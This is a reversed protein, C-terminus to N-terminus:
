YRAISRKLQEKIKQQLIKPALVKVQDGYSLIEMKFDYTPRIFYRYRIEKDNQEILEQSKHLPLSGVYRGERPSFSLIVEVPEEETGNIIGFSNEFETEVDFDISKFHDKTLNLNEIRDLSFNKIIDDKEDKAILYWRNRAEKLSIPYVRRQSVSGDWFKKYEFEVVWLNQVAYLLGAMHKTGLAKRQEFFLSNGMGKSLRIANLLDYNERLRQTSEDEVDDKIYYLNRSKDSAIEIGYISAIDLIDRQFTRQSTLLKEEVSDPDIAIEDQIEEFGMPKKQLLSIIKFHRKITQRVSM